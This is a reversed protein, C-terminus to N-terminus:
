RPLLVALLQRFKTLFFCLQDSRFVKKQQRKAKGSANRDNGFQCDMDYHGVIMYPIGDFPVLNDLGNNTNRVTDCWQVQHGSLSCDSGVFNPKYFCFIYIHSEVFNRFSPHVLM